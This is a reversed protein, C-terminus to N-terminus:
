SHGLLEKTQSQGSLQLKRQLQRTLAAFMGLQVAFTALITGGSLSMIGISAFPSFLLVIAAFGTPSKVPSLIYAGILPLLMAGGVISAIWLNRKRVKLFLGVHAIAAYILILSAALCVGALLRIEHGPTSLYNFGMGHTPKTLALISVPIWFVMAMFVNIAITLLAPSKDNAILDQVLDRKWFKRPQHTRERRYRSWDQIAQKSPLLMPISCLLALFDAIALWTLIQGTAYYKDPDAFILPITFGAIWLQLCLNTLYSQPKSIVTATPNLYRRELAQWVWYSAVLCCGIGFTYFWIASSNITLGFWSLHNNSSDLWKEQNITGTLYANIALLPLCIPLAVVAVTVIAQFGGLLVYLVSASSLLWCMSGITLYWSALLPLTAGASFGVWLHLPLMVAAALYVLIPVSAIKGSFITRASQPSLRIFNLTGRKEEQVLDAVLMYISGLILGLSFIWSLCSFLDSRWKQWNIQFNGTSDLKCINTSYNDASFDCYKHYTNASPQYQSQLQKSYVTEPVAVPIQNNFYLLTFGQILLSAVVAIGINRLTLREKLERFIQPNSNGMRDILRDLM